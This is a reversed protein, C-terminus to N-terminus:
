YGALFRFLRGKPPSLNSAIGLSLLDRSVWIMSEIQISLIELFPCRQGVLQGGKKEEVSLIVQFDVIALWPSHGLPISLLSDKWLLRKQRNSSGYVFAVFISRSQLISSIRTLIFQPHHRIVEEDIFEKWGLWIGGSFGVSEVRHTRELGLKAIITGAKFGSVM